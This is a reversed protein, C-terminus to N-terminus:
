CMMLSYMFSWVLKTRCTLDIYSRRCAKRLSVLVPNPLDLSSISSVGLSGCSLFLAFLFGLYFECFTCDSGGDLEAFLDGNLPKKFAFFESCSCELM